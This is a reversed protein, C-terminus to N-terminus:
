RLRLLRLLDDLEEALLHVDLRDSERLGGTDTDLRNRTFPRLAEDACRDFVRDRVLALTHTEDVLAVDHLERFAREAVPAVFEHATLVFTARDSPVVAVAFRGLALDEHPVVDRVDRQLLHQ